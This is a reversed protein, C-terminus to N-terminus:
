MREPASVGLLGLGNAIVIRTAEGLWLRARHVDEVPDSQVQVDGAVVEIADKIERPSEDLWGWSDFSNYLVM